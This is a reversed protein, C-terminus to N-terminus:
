YDLSMLLTTWCESKIDDKRSMKAEVIQEIIVEHLSQMNEANILLIIVSQDINMYIKYECKIVRECLQLTSVFSQSSILNCFIKSNWFITNFVHKYEESLLEILKAMRQILIRNRCWEHPVTDFLSVYAKVYDASVLRSIVIKGSHTALKGKWRVSVLQGISLGIDLVACNWQVDLQAKEHFITASVEYTGDKLENTEIATIRFILPLQEQLICLSTQEADGLKIILRDIVTFKQATFTTSPNLM